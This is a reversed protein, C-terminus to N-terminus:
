ETGLGRTLMLSFASLCSAMTVGVYMSMYPMSLAGNRQASYWSVVMDSPVQADVPGSDLTSYLTVAVVVMFPDALSIISPVMMPAALPPALVMNRSLRFWESCNFLFIVPVGSINVSAM